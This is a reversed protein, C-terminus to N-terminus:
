VNAIVRATPSPRQLYEEPSRGATQQHHQQRGFFEATIQAEVDGSIQEAGLVVIPLLPEPYTLGESGADAFVRQRFPHDHRQSFAHFAWTTAQPQGPVSSRQVLNGLHIEFPY